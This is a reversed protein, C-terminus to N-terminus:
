AIQWRRNASRWAKAQKVELAATSTHSVDNWARQQHQFFHSPAGGFEVNNVEVDVHQLIRKEFADRRLADRCQM